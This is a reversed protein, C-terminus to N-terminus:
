FVARRAARDLKMLTFAVSRTGKLYPRVVLKGDEIHFSEFEFFSIAGQEDYRKTMGLMLGGSPSTYHAEWTSKESQGLWSGAMWVMSAIQGTPSDDLAGSPTGPSACGALLVALITVALLRLM